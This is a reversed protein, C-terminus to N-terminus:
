DKLAGIKLAALESQAEADHPTGSGVPEGEPTHRQNFFSSGDIGCARLIEDGGPHRPIFSTLDYIEGNIVAWCDDKTNHKAVDDLTYTQSTTSGGSATTDDVASNPTIDSTTTSTPTDQKTLAWAAYGGGALIAIALCVVFLKKNSM